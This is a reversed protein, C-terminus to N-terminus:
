ILPTREVEKIRDFDEDDSVMVRLNKIVASALHISDRPSIKYKDLLIQAASLVRMDADIFELNPFGLLKKGQNVGDERGLTRGVVGVVEDWTLTSTYGRLDGREIRLLIERANRSKELDDARYVVPYIFINSDIYAL